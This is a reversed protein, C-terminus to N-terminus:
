TQEPWPLTRGQASSAAAALLLAMVQRADDAAVPAASATAGGAAGARPGVDAAIADRVGAYFARYDGRERPRALAREGDSIWVPRDDEGWGPAGPQVGDRLQAEQVDWGDCHFSGRSGHVEWRAAAHAALRTCELVVRRRPYGLVVRADDDTVAGARLTALDGTVSRPPGFLQLAQDLLHPGLDFWLGSGPGPDERWRRRPAPSFRQLRSVVVHVEGLEAGALVRRLSLFDGDWRRNHFVTLLRRRAAALAMLEDCQALTVAFPKDIVVHKDALLAARALEHHSANPTAIVVLDLAPEALLAAADREVRLAPWRAHVKAPDRSAVAVLQLGPVSQLLPAHFTQGAYGMGVIAARVVQPAAM